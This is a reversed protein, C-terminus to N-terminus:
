FTEADNGMMSEDQKEMEVPFLSNKHRKDVWFKMGLGMIFIPRILGMVQIKECIVANELDVDSDGPVLGTDCFYVKPAEQIARASSSSGCISSLGSMNM